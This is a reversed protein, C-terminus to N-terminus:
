LYINKVFIIALIIQNYKKFFRLFSFVLIILNFPIIIVLRIILLSQGPLPFNMIELLAMLTTILINIVLSLRIINITKDFFYEAYGQPEATVRIM